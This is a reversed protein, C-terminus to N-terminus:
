FHFQAPIAFGPLLVAEADVFDTLGFGTGAKRGLALRTVGRDDLGTALRGGDALQGILAPSVQAVAGDILIAAYPAAAAWGANLAGDVFSLHPADALAIRAQALLVGDSELATVHAGVELLLAAAYGTAAGVLLVSEGPSIALAALLRATTLPPNLARAEGLPIARDIYCTAQRERPAFQERPVALLAAIVAPDNVANTRLQSDVMARRMQAYDPSTM